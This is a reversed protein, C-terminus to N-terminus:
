ANRCGTVARDCVKASLQLVGGLDRNEILATKMGFKGAAEAATEYGGPGSGIVILDYQNM